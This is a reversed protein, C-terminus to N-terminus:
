RLALLLQQIWGQVTALMIALSFVGGSCFAKHPHYHFDILSEATLEPRKKYQQRDPMLSVDTQPHM